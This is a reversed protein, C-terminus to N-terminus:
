VVPLLVREVELRAHLGLREAEEERGAEHLQHAVARRAAGRLQEVFRVAIARRRHTDDLSQVALFTLERGRERAERRGNARRGGPELVREVLDRSRDHSESKAGLHLYMRKRTRAGGRTFLEIAAKM